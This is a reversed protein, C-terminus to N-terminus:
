KEAREDLMRLRQKARSQGRESAHEYHTRACEYDLVKMCSDAVLMHLDGRKPRQVLARKAYSLAQRYQGRDFKINHLGVLASVSRRDLGLARHFLREAKKDHGANYAAEAARVTASIEARTRGSRVETDTGMKIPGRRPRGDIESSDDGLAEGLGDPDTSGASAPDELEEILREVDVAVRAPLVGEEDAMLLGELQVQPDDSALSALPAVAVLEYSDFDGAAARTRLDLLAVLSLGARRGARQHDPAFVLAQAYFERAFGRGGARDWYTDGLGVLTGAFEERLAASVRIADPIDRAEFELLVRYATEAQPDDTTPYVWRAHAAASRARERLADLERQDAAIVEARSDANAVWGVAAGIGVFVVLGAGVLFRRRQVRLDDSRLEALGEDLRRQRRGDELEPAPLKDWPTRLGLNLQLEIIAAELEAASSYRDAPRKAMCRLILTDFGPTLQGPPAFTSPPEPQTRVHDERLRREDDHLFPLRGCALEYLTVGFSYIDARADADQGKCQEPSMYAPTGGRNADKPGELLAALGFDVIKVQERGDADRGIMINEPKVDRHVFGVEHAHALGKCVQRAIGILRAPECAATGREGARGRQVVYLSSGEVLEMLYMLRGDPLEKYDFIEVIWPSGIQSITRAEERFRRMRAVSESYYLLKAAYRREIDLHRVEFVVGMGGEGLWRVIELRTGPIVSGPVLKPRRESYADDGTVPGARSDPRTNTRATHENASVESM